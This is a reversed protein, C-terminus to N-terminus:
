VVSKRDESEESRESHYEQLAADYLSGIDQPEIEFGIDDFEFQECKKFFRLSGDLKCNSHFITSEWVMLALRKSTLFM